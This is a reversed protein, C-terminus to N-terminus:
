SPALRNLVKHVYITYTIVNFILSKVIDPAGHTLGAPANFAKHLWGHELMGDM